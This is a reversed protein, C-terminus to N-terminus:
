VEGVIETLKASLDDGFLQWIGGLAVVIAAAVIVYEIAVVGDENAAVEDTTYKEVLNMM